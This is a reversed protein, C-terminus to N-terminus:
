RLLSSECQQAANTAPRGLLWTQQSASWLPRCVRVPLFGATGPSSRSSIKCYYDVSDSGSWARPAAGHALNIIYQTHPPTARHACWQTSMAYRRQQRARSGIVTICRYVGLTGHAQSRWSRRLGWGGTELLVNHVLLWLLIGACLGPM